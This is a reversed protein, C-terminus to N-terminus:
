RVVQQSESFYASQHNALASKEMTAAASEAVDQADRAPFSFRLGGGSTPQRVSHWLLKAIIRSWEREM